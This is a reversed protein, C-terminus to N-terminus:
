LEDQPIEFLQNMGKFDGSQLGARFWRVRQQSSGHTFSDPVVYGQAAKQLRDDGIANAARLGEELDDPDLINRMKQAHHAWVGALYDAQLELRVSLKNFEAEPLRRRQAQVQDSIGLLNQVHHGIEHAVVYAQAFDGPAKFRDKLEDYFALDIYVKRDLPCYFPGMAAQATGCGSRDVGSFLVLTPEEYKRGNEAFLKQWVDETSALVKSVFEKQAEQEPDAPAAAGGGGGQVAQQPQLQQLLGRPDAGFLMAVLLIVLTGLGGGIATNRIAKRRDEVNESSRENELRM